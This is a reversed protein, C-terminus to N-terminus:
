IIDKQSFSELHPIKRFLWQHVDLWLAESYMRQFFLYGTTETDDCFVCSSSEIGFRQRLLVSNSMNNVYKRCIDTSVDFLPRHSDTPQTHRIVCRQKPPPLSLPLSASSPLLLCNAPLCAKLCLAM